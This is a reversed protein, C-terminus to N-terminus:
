GNSAHENCQKIIEGESYKLKPSNRTKQNLKSVKDRVIVMEKIEELTYGKNKRYQLNILKRLLFLQRKKLVAYPMILDIFRLIKRHGNVQYVATRKKGVYSKKNGVITGFGLTDKIQHLIPTTKQAIKIIPRFRPIDNKRKVTLIMASGEGDFFGAIYSYDIKTRGLGM